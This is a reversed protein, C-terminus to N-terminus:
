TVTREFTEINKGSITFTTTETRRVTAGDYKYVRRVATAPLKDNVTDYTYTVDAVLVTQGSDEWAESLTVQNTGNRTHEVYCDQQIQMVANDALDSVHQAIVRLAVVEGADHPVAAFKYGREVILDSGVIDTVLVVENNTQAADSATAAFPLEAESFVAVNTVPFTTTVADVSATLVPEANDAVGLYRPM